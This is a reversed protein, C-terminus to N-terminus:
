GAEATRGPGHEVSPTTALRKAMVRNRGSRKAAYLEADACAVLDPPQQEGPLECTAVGVSTTVPIRQGDVEFPVDAIRGRIREAALRADELGAEYLIVLFEEGGYRGIADYDRTVERVRRAFEQLVRDGTQHGYTDNVSKFHDIDLMAVSLPNRRRAAHAHAESLRGELARRNLVGTLGDLSALEQLQRQQRQMRAQMSLIRLGVRLRAMLEGSHFPKTIYDDAGVELGRTVESKDTHGTLLIIYTYDPFNAKRICRCLTLGDMEPMGWDTLVLAFHRQELLSWARKGNEALEVELGNRRLLFALRARTTADDEVVLVDVPALMEGDPSQNTTGYDQAVQVDVQDNSRFLRAQISPWGTIPDNDRRCVRTQAM